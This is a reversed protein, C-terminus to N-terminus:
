YVLISNAIIQKPKLNLIKKDHRAAMKQLCTASILVPSKKEKILNIFSKYDGCDYERFDSLYDSIKVNGFYFLSIQQNTSQIIQQNTSKLWGRIAILEQGWSLNSDTLVQYSKAPSLFENTFTIPHPLFYITRGIYWILLGCLVLHWKKGQRWLKKWGFVAMIILFPYILLIHRLGQNIRLFLSLFMIALIPTLFFTPLNNNSSDLSFLLSQKNNSSTSFLKLPVERSTGVLDPSVRLISFMTTFFLILLPLPTKLLFVVPFYWWWGYKSHNGAFYADFGAKQYQVGFKLTALYDIFPLPQNFIKLWFPKNEFIFYQYEKAAKETQYSIAPGIKFLYSAWFAVFFILLFLVTRKINKKTTELSTSFDLWLRRRLSVSFLTLLFGTFFFIVPGSVKTAFLLGLSVPLISTWYKEKKLLYIVGFFLATFIFDTTNYHSHTLLNPEFIFLITGLLALKENFIEKLVKYFFILFFCGIFIVVLRPYFYVEGLKGTMIKQGFLFVPLSTILRALPPEVPELIFQKTKWFMLGVKLQLPEDWIPSENFVCYLNLFLYLIILLPLLLKKKM